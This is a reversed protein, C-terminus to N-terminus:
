YVFYFATVHYRSLCTEHRLYLETCRCGPPLPLLFLVSMDFFLKLTHVYTPTYTYTSTNTHTHPLAPHAVCFSLLSHRRGQYDAREITSLNEPQLQKKESWKASLCLDDKLTKKKKKRKFAYAAPEIKRESVKEM